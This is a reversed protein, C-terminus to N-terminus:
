RDSSGPSTKTGRSTRPDDNKDSVYISDVSDTGSALSYTFQFRCLNFETADESCNYEFVFNRCDSLQRNDNRDTSVITEVGYYNLYVKDELGELELSVGIVNTPNTPVKFATIPFNPLYALVTVIYKGDKRQYMNVSPGPGNVVQDSPVTETTLIAKSVLELTISSNNKM